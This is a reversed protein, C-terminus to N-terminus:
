RNYPAANVGLPLGRPPRRGALLAKMLLGRRRGKPCGGGGSPSALRHHAAGWSFKKM